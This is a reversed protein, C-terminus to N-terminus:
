GFSTESKTQFVASEDPRIIPLPINSLSLPPYPPMGITTLVDPVLPGPLHPFVGLGTQPYFVMPNLLSATHPRCTASSSSDSTVSLMAVMETDPFIDECLECWIISRELYLFDM